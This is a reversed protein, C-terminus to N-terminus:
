QRCPQPRTHVSQRSARYQKVVETVRDGASVELVARYRQEGSGTGVVDAPTDLMLQHTGQLAVLPEREHSTM